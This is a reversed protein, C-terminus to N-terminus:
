DYEAEYPVGQCHWEKGDAHEKLIAFLDNARAEDDFVKVIGCGSGDSYKWWVVWALPRGDDGQSMDSISM